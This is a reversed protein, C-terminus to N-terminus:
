IELYKLLTQATISDFFAKNKIEQLPTLIEFLSDSIGIKQLTSVTIDILISDNKLKSTVINIESNPNSNYSFRVSNQFGKIDRDSSYKPYLQILRSPQDEQNVEILNIYRVSCNSIKLKDKTINDFELWFDSFSKLIREFTEYKDLFHYSFQGQRIRLIENENKLDFGVSDSSFSIGDDTLRFKQDAAKKIESFKKKIKDLESFKDYCETDVINEYSISFVTERIPAKKLSPYKM